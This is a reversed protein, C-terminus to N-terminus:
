GFAFLDADPDGQGALAARLVEAAIMAFTIGNGGFGLVAYSRSHGPILGISPLGTASTGFSGTWSFQAEVDLQPFLSRLKDQIAATKRGILADRKAADSFPEDEGGAIVRGDPTTRAYLYTQAAQWILCRTAWLRDPQPVTAMAWTSVVKNGKGALIDPMEYGTAYIVSRTRFTAGNTAQATVIDKGESLGSIEADAYITAGRSIARRLLGGALRVPNCEANGSSRIAGEAEIGYREFLANSDLFTAPLGLDDRADAEDRLAKGNLLSGALYLSPRAQWDCDIGTARRSLHEVAQKSRLWARQANRDGIMKGLALLPVDPEFQILAHDGDHQRM